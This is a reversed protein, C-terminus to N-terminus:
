FVKRSLVPASIGATTLEVSQDNMQMSQQNYFLAKACPLSSWAVGTARNLGGEFRAVAVKYASCSTELCMSIM